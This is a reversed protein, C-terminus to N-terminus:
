IPESNLFSNPDHERSRLGARQAARAAHCPLWWLCRAESARLLLDLGSLDPTGMVPHAHHPRAVGFASSRRRKPTPEEDLPQLPPPAWM